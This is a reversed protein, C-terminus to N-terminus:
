LAYKGHKNFVEQGLHKKTKEHKKTTYKLKEKVWDNTHLAAFVHM